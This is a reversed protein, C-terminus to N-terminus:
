RVQGFDLKRKWTAFFTLPLVLFYLVVVSVGGKPVSRMALIGIEDIRIRVNHHLCEGYVLKRRHLRAICGCLPMREAHPQIGQNEVWPKSFIFNQTPLLGM